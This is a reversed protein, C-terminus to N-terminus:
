RAAALPATPSAQYEVMLGKRFRRFAAIQLAHHPRGRILRPPQM